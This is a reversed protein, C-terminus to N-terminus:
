KKEDQKIKSEAWTKASKGGWLLYSIYGCAETDGTKYYEEARSLYSFMRKITQMSIPKRDALQQARVKGVQTACKNNVKKNLEIGRKANNSVSQPYDSFSEMETRKGKKLRKDNKIVAKIQSLMFEAEAEEIASLEEQLDAIPEKPREMRDAFYGEISFGKVKGTKVFDNWVEDNNVKVSGMWTGVPVNMGFKRSKDHVEDEVIWSEVLTLGNIEHDHELTAKSQNGNQLYMQSAKVVTDKSFYIYYEEDGSRRYIPKNPILLAGVLLKKEKDAEALEIINSNLAIFDEEIAPNEVISIAQIGSDLSDEEIFLEFVEM